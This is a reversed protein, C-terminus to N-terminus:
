IASLIVFPLIVSAQWNKRVLSYNINNAFFISEQSDQVGASPVSDDELAASSSFVTWDDETLRM